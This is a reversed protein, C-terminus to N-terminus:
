SSSDMPNIIGMVVVDMFRDGIWLADRLRGEEEFGCKKLCGIMPLNSAFPTSLVKHLGLREFAFAVALRIAEAGYGRGRFAEEGVTLHLDAGRHNPDIGRLVIVGIPEGGSTRIGFMRATDCLRDRDILKRFQEPTLPNPDDSTAAIIEPDNYWALGRGWFEEAFECFVIRDSRPFDDEGM